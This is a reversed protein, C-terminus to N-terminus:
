LLRAIQSGLGAVILVGPTMALATGLVFDRFRVGWAGCLMNLLCFPAVPLVHSVIVAWIGRKALQHRLKVARPGTMRAVADGGLRAGVLFQIAAALFTGALAYGGGVLPGFALGTAAILGNVPVMLSSLLGFVGIVVFPALPSHQFGRAAELVRKPEVHHRLPTLWVAALLAALVLASIILRRKGSSRPAEEPAIDPDSGLPRAASMQLGDACAVGASDPSGEAIRM